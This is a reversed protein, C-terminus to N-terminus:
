SQRKELWLWGFSRISGQGRIKEESKISWKEKLRKVQGGEANQSPGKRKEM